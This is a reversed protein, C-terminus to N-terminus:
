VSTKKAEKLLNELLKIQGVIQIVVLEAQQKMDQKAKLEKELYEISIEM